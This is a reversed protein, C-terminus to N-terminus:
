NKKIIVWKEDKQITTFVGIGGQVASIIPSPQAFPNGAADRADEVSRLYNYFQREIHFLLVQITDNNKFRYSTGISIEGNTATVGRYIFDLQNALENGKKKNVIFRYFNGSPSVNHRILVYAKATDIKPERDADEFQWLLEKIPLYELFQTKGTVKRGKSDTIELTFEGTPNAPLAVDSVYNYVKRYFTDIQVEYHLPYTINGNRVFIQADKIEPIQLNNDLFEQSETLLLRIPKGRELYCEVVLKKEYEPLKLDIDRELGCSVFILLLATFQLCYFLSKM